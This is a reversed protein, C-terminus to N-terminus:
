NVVKLGKLVVHEELGSSAIEFGGEIREGSYDIPIAWTILKEKEKYQEIIKWHMEGTTLIDGIKSSNLIESVTKEIDDKELKDFSNKVYDLHIDVVDNFSIDESGDLENIIFGKTELYEIIPLTKDKYQSLRTKLTEENDDVRQYVEGGCYDCVSKVKPKNTKRNFPTSCSRCTLRNTIREKLLDDYVHLNLVSISDKNFLKLLNDVQGISRPYGDFVYKTDISMNKIKETVMGNIIDDSALIGNDLANRAEKYYLASDDKSNERLIDSGSIVVFGKDILIKALTGKGSGPKGLLLIHQM